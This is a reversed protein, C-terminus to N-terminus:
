SKLLHVQKSLEINKKTARSIEGVTLNGKEPPVKGVRFLLHEEVWQSGHRGFGGTFSWPGQETKSTM